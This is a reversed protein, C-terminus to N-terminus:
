HITFTTNAPRTPNKRFLPTTGFDIFAASVTRSVYGHQLSLHDLALTAGSEVKFFRGKQAADLV